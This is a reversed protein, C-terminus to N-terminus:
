PPLLGCCAGADRVGGASEIAAKDGGAEDSQVGDSVVFMIKAASQRSNSGQLQTLGAGMGASINTLGGTQYQAIASILSARDSSLPSLISAQLSSPPRRPDPRTRPPHTM